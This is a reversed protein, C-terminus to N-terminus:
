KKNGPGSYNFDSIPISRDFYKELRKDHSVFVLVFGLDQQERLLLKMFNDTSVDDLSSTPEDSIVVEPAGILARAAAVRQQQGMSLSTVRKNLTSSLDLHSTLREVEHELNGGVKERRLKSSVLPLIINEYITLYPVLNFDQFIFGIHDGRFRDRQFGTARVLDRGLVSVSGDTASIIGALLNLLTSKGSGSPGFIFIKEGSQVSFDSIDLIPSEIEYSFKVNNLKIISNM